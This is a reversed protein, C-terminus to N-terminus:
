WDEDKIVWIMWPTHSGKVVLFSFQWVRHQKDCLEPFLGGNAWVYKLIVPIGKPRWRRFKEWIHLKFCKTERGSESKLLSGSFEGELISKLSPSDWGCLVNTEKVEILKCSSLRWCPLESAEAWLSHGSCSLFCWALHQWAGPRDGGCTALHACPGHWSRGGLRLMRSGGARYGAMRLWCGALSIFGILQSCWPPLVKSQSNARWTGSCGKAYSKAM